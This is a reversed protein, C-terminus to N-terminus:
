ARSKASCQKFAKRVVEPITEPEIVQVSYKSIPRFLNVLDLHQHTEKHMRTTSSQGSIAVLPAHDMNADAVGTVLNTRRAWPNGSM